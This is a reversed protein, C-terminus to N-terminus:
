CIGQLHSTSTGFHQLYWAFEFAFMALHLLYWAIHLIVMGFHPLYKEFHCTGTGCQQLYLALHYWAAQFKVHESFNGVAGM